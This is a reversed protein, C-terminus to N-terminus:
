FKVQLQVLLADNDVSLGTEIKNQYNVQLRTNDNFFYNVGLTMMEQYGIKKIDLVQDFYEYKLVPQLKKSVDYSAM